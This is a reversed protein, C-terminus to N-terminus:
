KGNATRAVTVQKVTIASAKNGFNSRVYTLVDAIDQDKLYAFSPMVNSYYDGNIEVDEKFGNLVIKILRAQDGLVWPTKILPPNMRPVGGGDAQHCSICTQTFVKLGNAASAKAAASPVPKAKTSAAKAKPKQKTQAMLLFCFPSLLLVIILKKM